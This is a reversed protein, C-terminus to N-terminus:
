KAIKSQSKTEGKGKTEVALELMVEDVLRYVKTLESRYEVLEAWVAGHETPCLRGWDTSGFHAAIQARLGEADM